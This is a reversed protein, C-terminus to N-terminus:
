ARLSEAPPTRTATLAASLAAVSCVVLAVALAVAPLAIGPLYHLDFVQRALLWGTGGALLAAVLAAVLALLLWELAMLGGLERRSIGLARLLAAERRREAQAYALAGLLVLIAAFLALGLLGRAAGALEDIMERVRDLIAGVDIPSLNAFRGTLSGIAAAADDPLHFSSIWAHDLSAAAAPDLMVFFNVNFSDWRTHRLSAIRAQIQTDGVGLTIRDGLDLGLRQAFQQELSLQPGSDGAHWWQGAALTNGAPLESNWSLNIPGDRWREGSAEAVEHASAPEGNIRLFRGTAVPMSSINVAGAARLQELVDQRQDPQINLVFWNPTHPPLQAQWHGLMDPGIRATLLLATLAVALATGQLIALLPRRVLRMVALRAFGSRRALLVALLRLGLWVLGACLLAAAALGLLVILVLRPQGGLLLGALPLGLLPLALWRVPNGPQSASAQLARLPPVRLLGALPPLVCMLLLVLMALLSPLVALLDAPPMTSDLRRALMQALQAEALWGLALGALAAPLALLLIQGLPLWLVEARSAGLCRMLAAGAAEREALRALALWMAMVTLALTLLVALDIFGRGREWTGRLQAAADEIRSLRQGGQLQPELWAAYRDIARAPGALFLRYGPRSGPGLLGARAADDSGVILRPAMAFLQNGDPDEVLEATVKVQLAGLEVSDGPGIALAQLLRRDAYAQGPAPVSARTDQQHGPLRVRLEGRVPYDGAVAKIDALQQRDGAFLMTPFGLSSASRLGMAAAQQAWDDPIPSRSALRLDGGNVAAAREQLLDLTRQAALQVTTLAAVAFLLAVLFLRTEGQRLQAPLGRLIVRPLNM